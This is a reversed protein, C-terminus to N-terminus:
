LSFTMVHMGDFERMITMSNSRSSKATDKAVRGECKPCYSRRLWQRNTVNRWASGM